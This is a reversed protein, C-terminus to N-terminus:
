RERPKAHEHLRRNLHKWTGMKLRATIWKLTMPTERRLQAAWRLKLPDSKRRRPLDEERWGAKALGTQIICEAKQEDSEQREAGSHHEGWQGQMRELLERRFTKDGWYWGRRIPKWAGAPDEQQRREELRLEFQRRGAASDKPIGAEGLLRDVRLWGPRRSPAQLYLPFSSWRFSRLPADPLLLKARVPNLHVYEGLTRLYGPTTDDVILAKYRGSFLHGFLKHRRNFRGTYTGLLWKMGAVLNPKPTEVIVHFHNAMLCYAHVQWGTKACAEGLTDLFRQRDHDDCFIRERRDGRNLVHYVADPYQVRLKRAM